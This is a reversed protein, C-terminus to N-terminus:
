RDFYARAGIVSKSVTKRRRHVPNWGHNLRNPALKKRELCHEEMGTRMWSKEEALDSLPRNEGKGGCGGQGESFDGARVMTTPRQARAM